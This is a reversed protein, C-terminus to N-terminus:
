PHAAQEAAITALVARQDGTLEPERAAPGRKTDAPTRDPPQAPEIWGKAALRELTGGAVDHAKLESTTSTRERLAALARARQRATRALQELDQARGLATLQWAPEPPEDIARGERLLGPLAHSLVAGVPHHYYDAAWRLSLLLEAGIAPTADLVGRIAKLRAPAM